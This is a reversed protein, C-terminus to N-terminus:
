YRSDRSDERHSFAVKGILDDMDHYLEDYPITCAEDKVLVIVRWSHQHSGAVKTYIARIRRKLTNRTVANGAKKRVLVALSKGGKKLNGEQRTRGGTSKGPRDMRGVMSGGPRDVGSSSSEDLLWIKM